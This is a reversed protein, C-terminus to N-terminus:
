FMSYVPHNLSYHIPLFGEPNVYYELEFM